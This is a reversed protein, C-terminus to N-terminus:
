RYNLPLQDDKRHLIEQNPVQLRWSCRFDFGTGFVCAGSSLKHTLSVSCGGGRPTANGPPGAAAEAAAATATAALLLALMRM